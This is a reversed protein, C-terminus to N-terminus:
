INTSINRQLSKVSALIFVGLQHYNASDVLVNRRVTSTPWDYCPKLHRECCDCKIGEIGSTTSNFKGFRPKKNHGKKLCTVSLASQTTETKQLEPKLSCKRLARKRQIVYNPPGDSENDQSDFRESKCNRLRSAALRTEPLFFQRFGLEM